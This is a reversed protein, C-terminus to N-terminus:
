LQSLYDDLRESNMLFRVKQEKAVEKVDKLNLPEGVQIVGIMAMMAHPDCQYVYVGESELKVSIDQSMKGLWSEAGPPIMGDISASNHSMDTAKFHITDGKSVKIVPPDFVMNGGPGFNLMKIEHENGGSLMVKPLNVESSIQSTQVQVVKSACDQGEVCVNGVPAIRERIADEEKSAFISLSLFILFFYFSNKM